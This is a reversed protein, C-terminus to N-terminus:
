GIWYKLKPIRRILLYELAFVIILSIGVLPFLIAFMFMLIALGKLFRQIKLPPPSGIRGKPRRKWWMIYGTVSMLIVVLCGILCLILNFTGFYHGEHLAVGTSVIKGIIGYDAYRINSILNGSYQDIHLTVQETPKPPFAFVSYVGTPGQPFNINYGSPVNEKKAIEIVQEVSLKQTANASSQPVPVKEVAWPTSNNPAIDKTVLTSQPKPDWPFTGKPVGSHTQTEIPQLIKAGWFGSWPLGSLIIVGVIISVWFAPVSHLDRWFTRKGSKFRPILTGFLSKNERPFWLYLGTVILIFGWCAALEVLTNGTGGDGGIMLTGHIKRIMDMFASPKYEGLVQGNYPNVFVTSFSKFDQTVGIRASNTSSEPPGYSTVKYSPYKKQIASIQENVSLFTTEAKVTQYPKQQYDELMPKFLYIAGTIALIIMFPAAFMGAYFHWRWVLRYIASSEQNLENV